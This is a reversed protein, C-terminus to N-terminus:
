HGRILFFEVSVTLLSLQLFTVVTFAIFVIFTNRTHLRVTFFRVQWHKNPKQHRKYTDWTLSDVDYTVSINELFLLEEPIANEDVSQCM